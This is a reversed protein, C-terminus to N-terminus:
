DSKIALLEDIEQDKIEEIGKVYRFVHHFIPKNKEEKWFKQLDSYFVPEIVKIIKLIRCFELLVSEKEGENRGAEYALVISLGQLKEVLVQRKVHKERDLIHYDLLIVGRNPDYLFNGLSGIDLHCGEESIRNILKIYNELHQDSVKPSDPSGRMIEGEEFSWISVRDDLSTAHYRAMGEISGFKRGAIAQEIMEINIGEGKGSNPRFMKAVFANGESDHFKFVNAATGRSVFEDTKFAADQAASYKVRWADYDFEGDEYVENSYYPQAQDVLELEWLLELKNRFYPAYRKYVSMEMALEPFLVQNWRKRTAKCRLYNIYDDWLQDGFDSPFSGRTLDVLKNLNVTPTYGNEMAYKGSLAFYLAHAEQQGMLGEMYVSELLARGQLYLEESSKEKIRM